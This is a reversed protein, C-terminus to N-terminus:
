NYHIFLSRVMIVFFIISSFVLGGQAFGYPLSLTGAGVSTTLLIFISSVVTGQTAVRWAKSLKAFIGPNEAVAETNDGMNSSETSTNISHLPSAIPRVGLKDDLSAMRKREGRNAKVALSSLQGALKQTIQNPPRDRGDQYLRSVFRPSLLTQINRRLYFGLYGQM